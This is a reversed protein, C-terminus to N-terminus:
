VLVDIFSFNFPIITTMATMLMMMMMMMLVDFGPREGNEM